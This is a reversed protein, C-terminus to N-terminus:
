GSLVPYKLSKVMGPLGCMGKTLLWSKGLGCIGSYVQESVMGPVLLFRFYALLSGQGVSPLGIFCTAASLM